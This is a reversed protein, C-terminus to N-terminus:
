SIGLEGAKQSLSKQLTMTKKKLDTKTHGYKEILLTM